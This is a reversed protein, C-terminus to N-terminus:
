SIFVLTTQKQRLKGKVSVESTTVHKNFLRKANLVEKRVRSSPRTTAKHKNRWCYQKAEGFIPSLM